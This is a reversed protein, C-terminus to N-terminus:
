DDEFLLELEGLTAIPSAPSFSSTAVFRLYRCRQPASFTIVKVGADQAFNGTAVPLGWEDPNEAVYVEFGNIWGQRRDQRPTVNLGYVVAPQALGIVLEHPFGPGTSRTRWYTDPDGDLIRSADAGPEGAAARVVHAGHVEMRSPKGVLSEVFAPDMSQRPQFRDGQMYDILSRRLQAAVPRVGLDHTIDIGCALLKGGAVRAEFILGLKRNTFWDDVVQVIPRYERPSANLIFPHSRSVLEWWQWNTHMDTPFSSFLPHTPECLIGLTHPAQRSTWATNWFISSFGIRVRGFEDGAITSPSPLLLVSGGKQLVALADHDLRSTVHIGVPFPAEVPDPFLWFDWSNNWTTGTIEVELVLKAPRAVGRGSWEVNGAPTLSGSPIDTVPLIGTAVTSGEATRVRWRTVAGVLDEPGYHAIEIAASFREGPTFVRKNMRALPVTSACFRSFETPTVYGKQDWFADLVGVLATGQGPFDHLDLLEFGAMGPTRLASEIEEKYCLTQLKGSAILFARAQDGMGRAELRDRFIEMNKPKLSGTYKPIEAFNPYVCWQGIEHSVVPAGASAIFERYDTETEPPRANIRSNLGGGWSQIRPDPTVHFDNQPIM